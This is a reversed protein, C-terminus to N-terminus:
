EGPTYRRLRLELEDGNQERQLLRLTIGRAPDFWYRTSRGRPDDRQREVALAEYEGEPVRIRETQIVRYRHEGLFDRDAVTLGLDAERDTKLRQGLVFAVLHRDIVGPRYDFVHERERDRSLIRGAAPDVEVSRERSRLAATQRYRYERSEPQGDVLVFRSSENVELGVMSAMGATGRTETRLQWQAGDRDLRVEAVGAAKGKRLVEYEAVFPTPAALAALPVCALLAFLLRRLTEPM